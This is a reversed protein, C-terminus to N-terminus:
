LFDAIFVNARIRVDEGYVAKDKGTIMAPVLVM